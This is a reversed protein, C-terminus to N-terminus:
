LPFLSVLESKGVSALTLLNILLLLFHSNTLAELIVAIMKEKSGDEEDHKGDPGYRTGTIIILVSEVSSIM